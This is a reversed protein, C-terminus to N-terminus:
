GITMRARIRLSRFGDRMRYYANLMKWGNSRRIAALTQEAEARATVTERMAAEADFREADTMRVREHFATREDLFAIRERELQLRRVREIECERREQILRKVSRALFAGDTAIEFATPDGYAPTQREIEVLGAYVALHAKFIEAESPNALRFRYYGIHFLLESPIVYGLLFFNLVAPEVAAGDRMEGDQIVGSASEFPNQGLAYAPRGLLLSELFLSSNITLTRACRKIFAFSHAGDDVKLSPFTPAFWGAPHRRILIADDAASQRAVAILDIAAYGNSYAILNSDNEVQLAVGVAYEPSIEESLACAYQPRAFLWILEERSFTAGRAADEDAEFAVRRRACEGNANVGSFDFYATPRYTPERLPGLENHIVRVGFKGCAVTLSRCNCWTLAAEIETEELIRALISSLADVLPEYPRIMLARWAALNSVSERMLSQFLSAEIIDKKVQAMDAATPVVYGVSRANEAFAEWRGRQRWVDPDLFYEPSGVYRCEDPAFCSLQKYFVWLLQAPDNRFDFPYLFSVFM